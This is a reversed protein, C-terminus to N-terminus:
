LTHGPISCTPKENVAGLSYTGGESCNLKERLYRNTGFLDSDQPVDTPLKKNELAWTAKAGEIQKLNAVCANRPNYHGSRNLRILLFLIVALAPILLIAVRLFSIRGKRTAGAELGTGTDKSDTQMIAQGTPPAQLTGTEFLAIWRKNIGQRCAFWAGHM